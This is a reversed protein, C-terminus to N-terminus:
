PEDSPAPLAQVVGMREVLETRLKTLKAIRDDLMALTDEPTMNPPVVTHEHKEPARGGVIKTVVDAIRAVDGFEAAASAREIDRMLVVAVDGKVKDPDTVERLVTRSAEATMDELASLSLGWEEALQGATEGRRFEGRRMMGVIREVRQAKELPTARARTVRHAKVNAGGAGM